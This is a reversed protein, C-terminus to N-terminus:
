SSVGLDRKAAERFRALYERLLKEDERAHDYPNGLELGEQWEIESRKEILEELLSVAENSILFSGRFAAEQVSDASSRYRRRRELKEEDSSQERNYHRGEMISELDDVFDNALKLQTTLSEVISTYTEAKREWWRESYFRHLSWKVTLYATAASIVLGVFLSYIIDPASMRQNNSDTPVTTALAQQFAL